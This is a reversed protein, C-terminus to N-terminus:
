NSYTSSTQNMVTRNVADEPNGGLATFTITAGMVGGILMALAIGILSPAHRRSEREINTSPASM